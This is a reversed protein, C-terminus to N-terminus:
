QSEKEIMGLTELQLRIAAVQAATTKRSRIARNLQELARERETKGQMKDVAEALKGKTFVLSALHLLKGDLVPFVLKTAKLRSGTRWFELALVKENFALDQFWDTHIFQDPPLWSSNAPIDDPSILEEEASAPETISGCRSEDMAESVAPEAVDVVPSETFTGCDLVPVKVEQAAIANCIEEVPVGAETPTEVAVVSNTQESM